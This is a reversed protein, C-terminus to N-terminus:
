LLTQSDCVGVAQTGGNSKMVPRYWYVSGDQYQWKKFGQAIKQEDTLPVPNEQSSVIVEAQGNGWNIPVLQQAQVTSCVLLLLISITRM